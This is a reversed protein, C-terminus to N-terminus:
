KEVIKGSVENRWMGRIVAVRVTNKTCPGFFLTYSMQHLSAKEYISNEANTLDTAMVKEDESQSVLELFEPKKTKKWKLDKDLCYCFKNVKINPSNVYSCCTVARRLLSIVPYFIDM